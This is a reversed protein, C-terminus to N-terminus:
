DASRWHPRHPMTWSFMWGDAPYSWRSTTGGTRGARRGRKINRFFIGYCSAMPRRRMAPGSPRVAKYVGFVM